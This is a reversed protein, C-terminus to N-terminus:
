IHPLTQIRSSFTLGAAKGERQRLDQIRGQITADCLITCQTESHPPDGLPGGSGQLVGLAFAPQNTARGEVGGGGAFQLAKRHSVSCHLAECPLM